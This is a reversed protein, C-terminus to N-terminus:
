GIFKKIEAKAQKVTYGLWVGDDGIHRPEDTVAFWGQGPRRYEIRFEYHHDTRLHDLYAQLEETKTQRPM